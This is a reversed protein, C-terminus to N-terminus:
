GVPGPGTEGTKGCISKKRSFLRKGTLSIQSHLGARDGHFRGCWAMEPFESKKETLHPPVRDVLSPGQSPALCFRTDVGQHALLCRYQNCEWRRGFLWAGDELVFPRKHLNSGPWDSKIEAAADLPESKSFISWVPPLSILQSGIAM